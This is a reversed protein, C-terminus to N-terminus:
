LSVICTSNPASCAHCRGLMSPVVWVMHHVVGMMTRVAHGGEVMRPVVAVVGPVVMEMSGRPWARGPCLASFGGELGQPRPLPGLHSIYVPSHSATHWVPTWTFVDCPCFPLTCTRLGQPCFPWFCGRPLVACPAFFGHCVGRWAWPCFPGCLGRPSVCLM